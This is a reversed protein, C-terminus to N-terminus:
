TLLAVGHRGSVLEALGSSQAVAARATGDAASTRVEGLASRRGTRLTVANHWPWLPAAEGRHDGEHSRGAPMRSISSSLRNRRPLPSYHAYGPRLPARNSEASVDLLRAKEGLDNTSRELTPQDASRRAPRRTEGASRTPEPLPRGSRPQSVKWPSTAIAGDHFRWGECAGQRCSSWIDPRFNPRSRKAVMARAASATARRPVWSPLATWAVLISHPAGAPCLTETGLPACDTTVRHGRHPSPM